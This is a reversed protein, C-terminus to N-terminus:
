KHGVLSPISYTPMARYAVVEFYFNVLFSDVSTSSVSLTRDVFDPTENIFQESLVPANEYYDAFHYVDFSNSVGTRMQGTVHSVASKYDAWAEQYGFVTSNLVSNQDVYLESSYVPVEGIHALEPDYYDAQEKRTWFKEIGQQYTKFTKLCAVGIIFGHEVFSKTMRSRGNSLSYAGLQGLANGNGDETVTSSVQQVNLPTRKGGLYEPRQLRSDPSTVGFAGQLFEYYRSGYRAARELMRQIAMAYRFDNVSIGSSFNDAVAMLNSPSLSSTVNGLESEEDVYLQGADLGLVGANITNGSADKFILASGDFVDSNNTNERSVVPMNNFNLYLEVPNESKQPAPLASTFYDHLKGVKAPKGFYNNPSFDNNNFVESSNREGINVYVPDINNQDRFWENYILAYARFPLINIGSPVTGVPLGMYDAITGSSVVGKNATPVSYSQTNAWATETNEGMVNVWKDYCLRNPVYFYHVDMFINDMVPRLYPSSTRTVNTEHIKFTDGPLVEQVYVPILEGVNMSTFLRKSLNFRSRSKNVKPVQGYQFNSYKSM